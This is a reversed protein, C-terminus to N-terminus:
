LYCTRDSFHQKQVFTRDSFHLLYSFYKLYKLRKASYLNNLTAFLFISQSHNQKCKCINLKFITRLNIIMPM